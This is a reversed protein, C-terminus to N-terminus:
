EYASFTLTIQLDADGSLTPYAPDAPGSVIVKFSGGLLRTLDDGTFDAYDFLIDFGAERGELDDDILATGVPYLNDSDNMQFQVDVTGDFMARLETINVSTAGLLLTLEDLDIDGPAGGVQAEAESVFAGWPNGSETTIGKEDMAVGNAVDDSKIKLNLSVPASYSVPDDSCGPAAVAFTLALAVLTPKSM